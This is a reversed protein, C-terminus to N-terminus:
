FMYFLRVFGTQGTYPRNGYGTILGGLYDIRPTDTQAGLVPVPLSQPGATNITAFDSVDFKEYWYGVGVGIKPSITYTLDVTARHWTNTVNPLAVFQGLASLSGIRPGGHVFAQDSDSYDYGVRIDTKEIAKVLNVYVSANNVTEDNDLTWNRNPDTWSPDPAPNANRSRQLSSFTERGYDAGFNVAASPAVNVGVTYARNENDLLGFELVSDAGAYDDKGAAVSLNVGVIPLPSLEVMLTGRNRNRSAEDFFRLAPQGGAHTIIDVDVDLASRQSREFMARLTVWQNGVTDFSVRATDETWGQAARITHEWKDRTYGVRIASYRIPTFSANLDLTNRNITFPESMPGEPEPVADFRVYNGPFPRTFDSRSNFRYRATLTLDDLPRSNVNFTGTTYNVWMGARDRDMTALHPFSAYVAPTLIVPNTTWPILAENQRNASMVFSANATTRGPLKVMGLWDFTNLTNSPAMAMRGFAAGNASASYGSPDYGTGPTSNWSTAFLPNDWTFSPIAQDFKSYAYGFRTMGQHSAWEIAATVDTTRNDIVLPLEAANPFAFAAGWPQEGSRKFTSFGLHLNLHDTASFVANAALSDRRSQMDFPRAISNYISGNALQTLNQPVGVITPSHVPSAGTGRSAQIQSRLGADLACNGATCVFPTRAGYMYNLPTQDFLFSLKVRRSSFNAVYNQDRYGINRARLDFTWTPTERNYLLNVNAGNRLDRYREYRAEDGSTSTFRGGIEITGNSPLAAPQPTDQAGAFAASALWLAAAGTMLRNRM